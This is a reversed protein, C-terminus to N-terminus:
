RPVEALPLWSIRDSEYDDEPGGTRTAGDALYIHHVSDPLGATPEVKPL